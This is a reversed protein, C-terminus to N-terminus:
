TGIEICWESNAREAARVLRPYAKCLRRICDREMSQTRYSKCGGEGQWHENVWFLYQAAVVAGDEAICRACLEYDEKVPYNEDFLTRGTNVIGMCSATVYARFRFPLYPYCGRTAGDTAVGWIRLNLQETIDFLKHFEGLWTAEDLHVKMSQHSLMKIYGQERVDDDIMVVRRAETHRLIWNRTSTIGHVADPVPVVNKAGAKRYAPAELAPVYVSCSPIVAQTKVRGARGKSPVAVHMPPPPPTRRAIM